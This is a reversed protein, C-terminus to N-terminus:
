SYIDLKKVKEKQIVKKIKDKFYKILKFSNVDGLFM